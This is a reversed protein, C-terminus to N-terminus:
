SPLLGEAATAAHCGQPLTSDCEDKTALLKCEAKSQIPDVANEVRQSFFLRKLKEVVMGEVM